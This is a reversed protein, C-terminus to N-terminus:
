NLYTLGLKWWSLYNCACPLSSAWPVFMAFIQEERAQAQTWHSSASRLMLMLGGDQEVKRPPISGFIFCDNM